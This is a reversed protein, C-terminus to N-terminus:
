AAPRTINRDNLIQTKRELGREIMRLIVEEQEVHEAIIHRLDVITQLIGDKQQFAAQRNLTEFRAHGAATECARVKDRIYQHELTLAQMLVTGFIPPLAEEEFDFHKRIGTALTSMSETLKKQRDTLMELSSQSWNSSAQDLAFLAELDNVSDRVQLAREGLLQHEALVSRIIALHDSM